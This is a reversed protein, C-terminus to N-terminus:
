SNYLNTYLHGGGEDRQATTGCNGPPTSSCPRCHHQGSWPGEIAVKKDKRKQRRGWKRSFYGSCRGSLSRGGPDQRWTQKQPFFTLLPDSCGCRVFIAMVRSGVCPGQEWTQAVKRPGSGTQMRQPLIEEAQIWFQFASERQHSSKQRSSPM